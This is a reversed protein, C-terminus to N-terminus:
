FVESMESALMIAVGLLSMHIEGFAAVFTGFSIGFLSLLLSVPPNVELSLLYSVILTLVPTFAKLMQIFSVSLYLYVLNGTVLTSSVCFSIPFIKYMYFNWIQQKSTGIKSQQKLPVIGLAVISHSILFSAVVGLSPSFFQIHFDAM